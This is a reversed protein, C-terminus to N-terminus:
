PASALVIKGKPTPSGGSPEISLAFAEASDVRVQPTFQVRVSGTTNPPLVGGSVPIALKPDILWFQYSQTPPLAPLNEVVLVGRQDQGSWISAGIANPPGQPTPKLVALKTNNLRDQEPVNTGIAEELTQKERRLKDVRDRYDNMQRRTEAHQQQMQNTLAATQRNLENIRQMVQTQIEQIRTQYNTFSLGSRTELEAVQTQLQELAETKEGLQENLQVAQRRLSHGISILLTCLIAFCAALAWPIWFFWGPDREAETPAVVGAAGKRADITRLIKSKLEPPPSVRPFAAVMAGATGRLERVLLQLQLDGRM